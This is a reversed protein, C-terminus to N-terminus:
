RFLESIKKDYTAYDKATLNMSNKITQDCKHELLIKTMEYNKIVVALHLPTNGYKDQSNINGKYKLMLKVFKKDVMFSVVHFPTQDNNDKANPDGGHELLIKTIEYNSMFLAIHIPTEGDDNRTNLIKKPNKETKLIEIVEKTNKKVLHNMFINDDAICENIFCDSDYYDTAHGCCLYDEYSFDILPINSM